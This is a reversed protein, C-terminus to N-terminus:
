DKWKELHAEIYSINNVKHYQSPFLTTLRCERFRTDRNRIYHMLEPRTWYWFANENWFSVHTPDQWAGRGDTSPTSSLLLGGPALVRHIESMIQMKDKIHELADHARVVGVSNDSLPIGEDLNCVIDANELDLSTYGAPANFGGCLDIKMLGNLDAWREALAYINQRYLEHTKTQIAANRELWTNSGDIRYIYLVKEIEKFTSVLYTRHMLDLDDCVALTPNHGGIQQYTTRRWARVHDPAFWIQGLRGPLLPLNHMAYLLRGQWSFMEHTWGFEASYPTFKGMKANQSYVFGVAPDSEFAAVVEALCDPTIMDDHDVEVLYDGTALNCAELKLAGVNTSGTKSHYVKIREDAAPTYAVGNNLLIVWEWDTYTQALITSELEALYTPRHSPTFITVKNGM